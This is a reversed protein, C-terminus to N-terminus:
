KCSPYREVLTEMDRPLYNEKRVNKIGTKNRVYTMPRDSGVCIRKERNSDKGGDTDHRTRYSKTQSASREDFGRDKLQSDPREIHSYM